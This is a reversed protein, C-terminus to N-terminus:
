LGLERMFLSMLVVHLTFLNCWPEKFCEKGCIFFTSNVNTVERERKSTPFCQVMLYGVREYVTFDIGYTYHASSLM